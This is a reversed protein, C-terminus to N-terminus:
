HAEVYERIYGGGFQANLARMLREMDIRLVRGTRTNKSLFIWEGTQRDHPSLLTATGGSDMVRLEGTTSYLSIGTALTGTPATGDFINLKNSGATGSRAAHGGLELEGDLRTMGAAVLVAYNTTAGVTPGAVYLSAGDTTGAGFTTGGLYVTAGLTATAAANTITPAVYLGAITGHVGSGAEALVPTISLGYLGGSAVGTLTGEISVGRTEASGTFSGLLRLRQDASTTGGIAHPGVSSFRFANPFVFAESHAYWQTWGTLKKVVYRLRRLEGQLTTSLSVTDAPYPDTTSQMTAADASDDDVCTTIMNTQGLTTQIGNAQTAGFNDGTVFTSYIACTGQANVFDVDYLGNVLGIYLM